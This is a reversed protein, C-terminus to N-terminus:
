AVRVRKAEAAVVDRSPTLCECMVAALYKDVDEAFYLSARSPHQPSEAICVPGEPTELNWVAPSYHTYKSTKARVPRSEPGSRVTAGSAVYQTVLLPTVRKTLPVIVRPRLRRLRLVADPMAAKMDATAIKSSDGQREPILNALLVSSLAAREDTFIGALRYSSITWNRMRDWFGRRDRHTVFHVQPEGLSPWLEKDWDVEHGGSNGPSPGVYVLWPNVVGWWYRGWHHKRIEADIADRRDAILRSALDWRVRPDLDFLGPSQLLMKTTVLDSYM